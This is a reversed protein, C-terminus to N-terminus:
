SVSLNRQWEANDPDAKALRDAIALGDRFSKLAEPLNGQDALVDGIKNYFVSLDRQWGTNGPDTKALRDAIALGDRFSKLAEPLNGLAKLVNGISHYSVSLDHQWSANGPAAKALRDAIALGDRFSKLAEPLNGRAVLVDGIKNYSVSLDREDGSRRAADIASRFSKEAEALSGRIGWLDGLDIWIWCNDPDLRSAEAFKACADDYNLQLREVRAEDLLFGAESRSIEERLARAAERGKRLEARAAYLEGRDILASARVRIAAFEPRDNRLRTLDARLQILEDAAAALRKPIEEIATQAAGLKELVARLPAVPVGKEEAIRALLKELVKGVGEEDVGFTIQSNSIDRGVAVSGRDATVSPEPPSRPAGWRRLWGLM